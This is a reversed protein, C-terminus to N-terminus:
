AAHGAMHRGIRVADADARTSEHVIRGSSMVVIRDALELLEDLDESILLVAAGRNRVEVLRNHIFEVAAFDLGFCPNAAVLVRIEHGALERALIVRQVNGGSLTKVPVDPSPPRVSFREILKVAARRMESFNLVGGRSYPARDFDRLAMNEAVTMGPVVANRMPEEPLIFVGLRRMTDKVPYYAEGMVAVQGAQIPRQGALTEVLERQGNGSVGAVGLIEGARVEFSLDHLVEVGKDGRARLHNVTFVAPGLAGAAREVAEASHAEGMMLGALQAVSSGAVDRTGVGRGKRLVTVRNAYTMVERFKHTILLVSLTGREVMARLRGLIEDAEAPTLVSTPEDMMLFRTGLYLEKVIEVKQKEGAALEAVRAGLDVAFPADELFTRLREMEEQWRIVAPLGPRPLTLNEAVTMSPILTFHQFVMGIGSRRAQRPDRARWAAGDVLMEGGDISNVGMICKALTSKGAGNEGILAHFEGPEVRLDVGDLAQVSGFRKRIGRLEVTPPRM